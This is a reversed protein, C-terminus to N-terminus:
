LIQTTMEDWFATFRILGPLKWRQSMLYKWSLILENERSIETVYGSIYSELVGRWKFISVPSPNRLPFLLSVFFLFFVFCFLLHDLYMSTFLLM